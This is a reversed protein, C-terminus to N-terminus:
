YHEEDGYRSRNSDIFDDGSIADKHFIGHPRLGKGAAIKVGIPRWEFETGASRQAGQETPRPCGVARECFIEIEKHSIPVDEGIEETTSAGERISNLVAQYDSNETRRLQYQARKITRDIEPKFPEYICRNLFSQQSAIYDLLFQKYHPDLYNRNTECDAVKATTKNIEKDLRAASWAKGKDGRVAREIWRRIKSKSKLPALYRYHKSTLM